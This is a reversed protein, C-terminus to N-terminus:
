HKLARELFDLRDQGWYPQGEYIYWPAGFVQAKIAEETYGQYLTEVEPSASAKLLAKGDLGIAQAIAELTAPNAIDREEEWIARMIAHSLAGADHGARGAAIALKNAATQDVPFHKPHLNLKTGLHESWRKLEVLRYAQRQPPRKGLPLGGSQPFIRGYDVPKFNVKAGAAKAMALLRKHGMYSWPSQHTYYYDISKSATKM